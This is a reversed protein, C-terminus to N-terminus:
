FVLSLSVRVGHRQHLSITPPLSELPVSDWKEGGTKSGIALGLLVGGAAGAVAGTVAFGDCGRDAYCNQEAVGGAIAGSIAGLCGGLLAGTVTHSRKKGTRSVELRTVADRPVSKVVGSDELLLEVSEQDLSVLNGVLCALFGDGDAITHFSLV